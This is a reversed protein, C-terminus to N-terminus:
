EVPTQTSVRFRDELVRLVRRLVVTTIMYVPLWDPPILTMLESMELIPVAFMLIDFVIELLKWQM